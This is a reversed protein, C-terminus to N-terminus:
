DYRLSIVPDVRTARQAPVFCAITAVACFLTTVGVFTLAMGEYLLSLGDAAQGTM